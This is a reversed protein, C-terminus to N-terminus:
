KTRHYRPHPKAVWNPPMQSDLGACVPIVAAATPSFRKMKGSFVEDLKKVIRQAWQAAALSNLPSQFAGIHALTYSWSCVCPAGCYLRM